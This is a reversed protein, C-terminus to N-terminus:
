IFNLRAQAPDLSTQSKCAAKQLQDRLKKITKAHENCETQSSTLCAKLKDMDRRFQMLEQNKKNVQTRLGEIKKQLRKCEEWEQVKEESKLKEPSKAM